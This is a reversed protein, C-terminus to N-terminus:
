RPTGSERPDDAGAKDACEQADGEECPGGSTHVAAQVVQAFAEGSLCGAWNWLGRSLDPADDGLDFFEVAAHDLLDFLAAAFEEAAFAECPDAEEGRIDSM